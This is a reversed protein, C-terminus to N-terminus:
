WVKKQKSIKSKPNLGKRVKNIVM